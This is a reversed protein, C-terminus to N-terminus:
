MIIVTKRTCYNYNYNEGGATVKIQLEITFVKYNHVQTSSNCNSGLTDHLWTIPKCHSHAIFTFM